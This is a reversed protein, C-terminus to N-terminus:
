QLYPEIEELYLKKDTKLCNYKCNKRYGHVFNCGTLFKTNEYSCLAGVRFHSLDLIDPNIDTVGKGSAFLFHCGCVRSLTALKLIKEEVQSSRHTFDDIAVLIRPLKDNPYKLRFADYNKVDAKGFVELRRRCEGYLDSLTYIVKDTDTISVNTAKDSVREIYPIDDHIFYTELEDAPYQTFLKSLINYLMVQRQSREESFLLCHHDLNIMNVKITKNLCADLNIEIGKATNKM